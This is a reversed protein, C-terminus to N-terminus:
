SLDEARESRSDSPRLAGKEQVHEWWSYAMFVQVTVLIAAVLGFLVVMEIAVDYVAGAIVNAGEMPQLGDRAGSLVWRSAFVMMGVLAGSGGAVAYPMWRENIM